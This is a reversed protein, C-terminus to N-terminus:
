HMCLSLHVDIKLREMGCYFLSIGKTPIITELVGMTTSSEVAVVASYKIIDAKRWKECPSRLRRNPLHFLSIEAERVRSRVPFVSAM